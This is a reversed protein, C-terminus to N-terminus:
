FLFYTGAMLILYVVNFEIVKGKLLNFISLVLMSPNIQNPKTPNKTDYWGNYSM